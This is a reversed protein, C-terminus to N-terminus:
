VRVSRAQLISIGEGDIAWEIDQPEGYHEEIRKGYEALEKAELDSLTSADGSEIPRKTITDGECYYGWKQEAISRKTISNTTKDLHYRDPTLEGGVVSEGLGLAAEIVIEDANATVPHITFMVGSKNASVMRQVIVAMAMGVYSINRLHAYRMARASFLSSITRQVAKLLQESGLVNLTSLHQGAFSSESSDERTTSSRVAVYGGLHQYSEVIAEIIEPPLTASLILQEIEAANSSLSEISEFDLRELRDKVAQTLGNRNMFLRYASTTIVFGDPVPFGFRVLDALRTAKTGFSPIERDISIDKFQKVYSMMVKIPIM